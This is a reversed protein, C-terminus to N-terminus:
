KKKLEAIGTNSLQWLTIIEPLVNYVSFIGFEDLWEDPNDPIDENGQKAMIYAVNEFTELSVKDLPKDEEIAGKYAEILSKMDLLLDRMFAQRYRRPTSGSAKFRVEKGDIELIKEM